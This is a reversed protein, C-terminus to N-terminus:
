SFSDKFKDDEQNVSESDKNKKTNMELTKKKKPLTKERILDERGIELM